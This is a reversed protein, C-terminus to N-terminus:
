ATPDDADRERWLSPTCGKLKHFVKSFYMSNDYGVSYAVETISLTSDKLLACAKKIRLDTLYEKPSTDLYKKFERFLQSRSIGVYDAIEDITLPYSYNRAMYDIAKQIYSYDYPHDSAGADAARILRSLTLYLEGAMAVASAYTNGRVEYIRLIHKQFSELGPAGARIVPFSRTFATADILSPADSGWFGVWYYEWPDEEDAYYTIGTEPYILFVDGPGISLTENNVTYHGHGSMVYHILYHDRTGPGWQCLPECRQYGVNYVSLSVLRKDTVKYSNKFTEMPVEENLDRM